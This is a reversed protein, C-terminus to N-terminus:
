NGKNDLLTDGVGDVGLDVLEMLDGDAELSEGNAELLKWCSETPEWTPISGADRWWSGPRWSEPIRQQCGPQRASM